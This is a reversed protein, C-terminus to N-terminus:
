AHAASNLRRFTEQAPFGEVEGRDYADIRAEAEDAWAADIQQRDPFEFSALIEEVLEAREVPPLQLAQTLIDRPTTPM